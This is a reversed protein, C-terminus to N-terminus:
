YCTDFILSNKVCWILVFKVVMIFKGRAAPLQIVGILYVEVVPLRCLEGVLDDQLGAVLYQM